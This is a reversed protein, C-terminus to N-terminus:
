LRDTRHRARTSLCAWVLVLSRLRGPEPTDSLRLESLRVGHRLSLILIWHDVDAPAPRLAVLREVHRHRLDLTLEALARDHLHAIRSEHLGFHDGRTRESHVEREADATHRPPPDHLDVTRLRGTLGRQRQVDHRLRLPVAPDGGEDVGLM